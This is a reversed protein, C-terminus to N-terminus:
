AKSIDMDKTVLESTCNPCRTAKIPIDTLCYECSKTTPAEIPKERKFKNIQKVVLFLAFSIIMFEIIINLFMGYNLTAVGAEKAQALTTYDNGDLSLFFNSFDVNGILKGVIPMIIDNVLSSVIKGFAGGVVVGIALDIVNGEFAFEKFEKFM